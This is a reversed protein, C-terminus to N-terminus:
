SCPPLWLVALGELVIAALALAAVSGNLWELFTLSRGRRVLPAMLFLAAVAALVTVSGIVWPAFAVWTAGSQTYRRACAVGTYGYIAAFHAAWVIVGASMRLAIPAFRSEDREHHASM